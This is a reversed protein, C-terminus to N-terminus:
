AVIQSAWGPKLARSKDGVRQAIMNFGILGSATGAFAWSWFKAVESFAILIPGSFLPTL